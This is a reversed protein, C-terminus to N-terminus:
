YQVTSPRGKNRTDKTCIHLPLWKRKVVLFSIFKGEERGPICVCPGGNRPPPPSNAGVDMNPGWGEGRNGNFPAPVDGGGREGTDGWGPCLATHPAARSVLPCSHLVPRSATALSDWPCGCIALPLTAGNTHRLLHTPGLVFDVVPLGCHM